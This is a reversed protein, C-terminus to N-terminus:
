NTHCSSRRVELPDGSLGPGEVGGASDTGDGSTGTAESKEARSVTVSNAGLASWASDSREPTEPSQDAPDLLSKIAASDLFTKITRLRAIVAITQAADSSATTHPTTPNPTPANTDTLEAAANAGSAAETLESIAQSSELVPGPDTGQSTGILGSFSDTTTRSEPASPGDNKATWASGIRVERITTAAAGHVAETVVARDSHADRLATLERVRELLLANQAELEICRADASTHPAPHLHLPATASESDSLNPKQNSPITVPTFTNSTDTRTTDHLAPDIPPPAAIGKQESAGDASDRGEIDLGLSVNEEGSSATDTDLPGSDVDPLWQAETLRPDFYPPKDKLSPVMHFFIPPLHGGHSRMFEERASTEEVRLAAVENSLSIIKSEYVQM